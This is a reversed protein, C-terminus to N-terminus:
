KKGGQLESLIKKANVDNMEAAMLLYQEALEKNRPFGFKGLRYWDGVYTM